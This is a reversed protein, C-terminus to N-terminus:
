AVGAKGNITIGGAGELVGFRSSTGHGSFRITLRRDGVRLNHLTVEPLWDLLTPNLELRNRPADAEVGLMARMFM